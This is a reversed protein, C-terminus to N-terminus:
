SLTVGNKIDAPTRTDVHPARGPFMAEFQRQSDNAASLRTDEQQAWWTTFETDTMTGVNM